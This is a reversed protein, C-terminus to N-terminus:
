LTVEPIIVEVKVGLMKIKQIDEKTLTKQKVIKAFVKAKDCIPYIKENGFITRISVQITM